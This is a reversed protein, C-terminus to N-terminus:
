SQRLIGVAGNPNTSSLNTLAIGDIKNEALKATTTYVPLYFRFMTNTKTTIVFYRDELFCACSGNIKSANTYVSINFIETDSVVLNDNEDFAIKAKLTAKAKNASAFLYNDGNEDTCIDISLTMMSVLSDINIIFDKEVVISNNNVSFVVGHSTKKEYDYFLSSYKNDRIHIIYSAIGGADIDSGDAYKLITESLKSISLNSNIRYIGVGLPGNSASLMFTNDDINVGNKIDDFTIGISPINTFVTIQAGLEISGNNYKVCNMYASSNTNMLVCTNSNVQYVRVKGAILNNLATEDSLEYTDSNYTRYCVKTTSKNVYFVYYLNDSVKFFGPCDDVNNFSSRNQKIFTNNETDRTYIDLYSINSYAYHFIVKNNNVKIIMSYAAKNNIDSTSIAITKYNNSDARKELEVFSYKPITDSTAKCYITSSNPPVLDTNINMIRYYFDNPTMTNYDNSKYKIAEATDQFIYRLNNENM